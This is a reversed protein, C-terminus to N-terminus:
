ITYDNEDKIAIAQEVVNKVVRLILGIFGAAAAVLLFPFFFWAAVLCIFAVALCCWSIHRLMRTNEPIFVAGAGINKLLRDLALLLVAAPAACCYFTADIIPALEPPKGTVAVFNGVLWPVGFLAAALLILFLRTLFTSLVLSRTRNWM